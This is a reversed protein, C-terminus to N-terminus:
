YGEEERCRSAKAIVARATEAIAHNVTRDECTYCEGSAWRNNTEELAVLTRQLTTLLDPIHNM